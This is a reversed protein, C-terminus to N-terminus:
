PNTKLKKKGKEKKKGKKIPVKKEVFLKCDRWNSSPSRYIGDENLLDAERFFASALKEQDPVEVINPSFYAFQDRIVTKTQPLEIPFHTELPEPHNSDDVVPPPGVNSNYVEKLEVCDSFSGENKEDHLSNIFQILSSILFNFYGQKTEFYFRIFDKPNIEKIEQKFHSFIKLQTKM